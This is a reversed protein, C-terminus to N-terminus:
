EKVAFFLLTDGRNEVSFGNQKLLRYVKNALPNLIQEAWFSQICFSEKITFGSITLLETIMVMNYERVHLPYNYPFKGELIKILSYISNINPTTLFMTGGTKLVRHCEEFCKRIGSGYFGDNYKYPIDSLHEVVEMSVIIDFSNDDYPYRMRLDFDTNCIKANFFHNILDTFISKEGLELVDFNTKIVKSLYILSQEMRLISYQYDNIKNQKYGRRKGYLTILEPLNKLEKGSDGIFEEHRLNDIPFPYDRYQRNISDRYNSYLNPFRKKLYNKVKSPLFMLLKTLLKKM